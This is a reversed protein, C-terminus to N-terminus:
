VPSDLEESPLVTAGLIDLCFCNPCIGKSSEGTVETKRDSVGGSHGVSKWWCIVRAIFFKFNKRIEPLLSAQILPHFVATFSISLYVSVYVWNPFEDNGKVAVAMIRIILPLWTVLNSLLIAGFVRMFQLQKHNKEKNLRRRISITVQEQDSPLSGKLSVYIGRIHKQVICAIWTNTAVLVSLPFVAVAVLFIFYHVNSTVRTAEKLTITCSAISLGFSVDGFGLVPCLSVSICLVWLVMVCCVSKRVTVVRHYKMPLKIFIFRDLSMLALTHLSVLSLTVFIVATMCWKCRSGDSDGLIYSGVFGSMVTFPMVLICVLLDTIALNLFLIYTPEKYLHQWLISLIILLNSPLGVIIFVLTFVATSLVAPRNREPIDWFEPTISLNSLKGDYCSYTSSYNTEYM